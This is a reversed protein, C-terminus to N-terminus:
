VDFYEALQKGWAYSPDVELAKSLLKKAEKVRDLEWLSAALSCMGVVNNPELKLAENLAKM